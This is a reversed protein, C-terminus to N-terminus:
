ADGPVGHARYFAPASVGISFFLAEVEVRTGNV